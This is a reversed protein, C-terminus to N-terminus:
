AVAALAELARLGTADFLSFDRVFQGNDVRFLSATRVQFRKGSPQVGLYEGAHTASLTWEVAVKNGDIIMDNLTFTADPFAMWLQAFAERVSEGGKVPEPFCPDQIYAEPHYCAACAEVDRRNAHEFFARVVGEVEARTIKSMTTDGTDRVPQPTSARYAITTRLTRVNVPTSFPAEAVTRVPWDRESGHAEVLRQRRDVGDTDGGSAARSVDCSGDRARSDSQSPRCADSSRSISWRCGRRM